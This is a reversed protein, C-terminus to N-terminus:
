FTGMVPFLSAGFALLKSDFIRLPIIPDFIDSVCSCDTLKSGLIRFESFGICIWFDTQFYRAILMTAFLGISWLFSKLSRFDADGM